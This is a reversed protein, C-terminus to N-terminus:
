SGLFQLHFTALKTLNIQVIIYLLICVYLLCYNCHM